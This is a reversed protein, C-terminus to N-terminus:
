TKGSGTAALIFGSGAELAANVADVQYPRLVVGLTHAPDEKFFEPHIRASVLDVPRRLDNLEIQYGWSELYPVVEDLLRFYIKGTESLFKIRGDWRGLKYAPMFYAGEVMIAFKDVLIKLDGPEMGSITAWVEDQVRIIAHKM